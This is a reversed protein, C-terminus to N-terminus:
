NGTHLSITTGEVLERHCLLVDGKLVLDGNVLRRYLYNAQKNASAAETQKRNNVVFLQEGNASAILSFDGGVAEELEPKTFKGGQPLYDIVTDNAKFLMNIGKM